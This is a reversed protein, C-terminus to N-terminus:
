ANSTDAVNFIMGEVAPLEEGPHVIRGELRPEGRKRRYRLTMSPKAPHKFGALDAIDRYTLPLHPQLAILKGNVMIVPM